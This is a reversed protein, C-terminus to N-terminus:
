IIISRDTVNYKERFLPISVMDLILEINVNINKIKNIIAMKETFFSISIFLRFGKRSSPILPGIFAPSIFLRKVIIGHKLKSIMGFCFIVFLLYVMLLLRLLLIM